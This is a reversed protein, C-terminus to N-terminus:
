FPCLVGSLSPFLRARRRSRYRCIGELGEPHNQLIDVSVIQNAQLGEGRVFVPLFEPTHGFFRSEEKHELLVPIKQGVYPARVRFAVQEAQRLLQAKRKQIEEPPVRNNYLAARTRKRPSYPFMHVRAFGVQEMMDITALFDAEEEGPFGVIVDTTVAFSPCEQRLTDVADLFIQRTYKRNMQKLIANSGSQLVIHMSPCTKKAYLVAEKLADDIEDPDISSIRIREIGEIADVKWVLDALTTGEDSFDGINIGTLVVEKYGNEALTRIERLIDDTKRSRSRGRVYPIICYTCFSNWGDQIKVFARTRAEVQEIKFEPYAREDPFIAEVLEEKKQNPVIQVPCGHLQGLAILEEEVGKASDVFCGTVVIRTGPYKKMAQVIKARSRQDASHTVTCTNIICLDPSFGEQVPAYM